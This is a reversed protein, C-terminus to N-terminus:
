YPIVMEPNGYFFPELKFLMERLTEKLISYPSPPVFGLFEAHSPCDLSFKELREMTDKTNINFDVLIMYQRPRIIPLSSTIDYVLLDNDKDNFFIVVTPDIRIVEDKTYISTFHLNQFCWENLLVKLKITLDEDNCIVLVKLNRLFQNYWRVLKIKEDTLM